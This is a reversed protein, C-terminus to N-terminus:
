TESRFLSFPSCLIFTKLDAATQPQVTNEGACNLPEGKWVSQASCALDEDGSVKEYGAECRYNATFVPNKSSALGAQVQVEYVIDQM